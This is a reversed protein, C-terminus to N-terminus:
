IRRTPPPPEIPARNRPEKLRWLSLLSAATLGAAVLSVARFSEATMEWVRAGLQSAVLMFIAGSFSFLALYTARRSVPALELSLILGGMKELYWTIGLLFFVAFFEFETSAFAGWICVALLAARGISLPLKGGFRDGLVGTLVSGVMGGAYKAVILYGVYSDPKDLTRLAHIALFPLMIFLSKALAQTTLLMRFNKDRGIIAPMQRLNEGLTLTHKPPSPYPEEKLFYFLIWSASTCAFTLLFLVGYGRPDGQPYMSLIKAILKGAGMGFIVTAMNRTAFLSARRNAPVTKAVLEQWATFTLGGLLGSALPAFVIACLGLTLNGPEMFFLILGGVLFAARQPIGFFLTIFKHHHLREIRHAVLMSPLMFGIAMLIPMLAILWGPAGFSKAGVTLVDAEGIFALGIMYMAGETAHLTYNRPMDRRVILDHRKQPWNTPTESKM